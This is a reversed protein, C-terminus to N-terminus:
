RGIPLRYASRAPPRVPPMSRRSRCRFSTPAPPQAFEVTTGEYRCDELAHKAAYGAEHPTAGTGVGVKLQVDADEAVHDVLGSVTSHMTM